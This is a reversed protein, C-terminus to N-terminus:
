RFNKLMVVNVTRKGRSVFLRKGDASFAYNFIMESKFDTLRGPASGDLDQKWLNGTQKETKHFVLSRGDPTWRAARYTWAFPIVNFTKQPPGGESPIVVLTANTIVSDSPIICAISKGDPSVSPSLAEFDTVQVPTGGATSIRWLNTSGNKHSAYVVSAGDPSCAPSTNYENGFTLQTVNSGNTNMRFLHQDGARDSTFFLYHNDPSACIEGETYLDATLPKGERRGGKESLMWLDFDEGNRSSYAIRGDELVALGRPGDSLGNTLQEASETSGSAELVWLQASTEWLNAVLAAGDRTLGLAYNGYVNLEKTIRQLQGDPYSLFFIQNGIRPREAILVIGSQDHTWKMLGDANLTERSLKTVRGSGIEVVFIFKNPAVNKTSTPQEAGSFAILKGDPSWAACIGFQLEDHRRTLVVQEESGDLAAIMLRKQRQNADDRFFTAKKGDPSLTFAVNVDDILKVPQGGLVPLRYLAGKTHQQDFLIYHIFANDPSFAMSGFIREGPELLRVESNTDTQRLFISGSGDFYNESYAIFKGDPSVTAAAVRGSTTIRTITMERNNRPQTNQTQSQEQRKRRSWGVYGIASMALLVVGAVILAKGFPFSRGIVPGSGVEPLAEIRSERVEAIFRYGRKPVTEIFRKENTEGLAKRLRFIHHSLNAEEVVSDPWVRKFIEEKTVLRGAREVLVHLVDFAKPTVDVPSNNHSLIKDEPDLRFEGFDYFHRSASHM